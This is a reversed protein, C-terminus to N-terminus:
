AFRTSPGKTSTAGLEEAGEEGCVEAEGPTAATGQKRNEHGQGSPEKDGEDEKMAATKWTLLPGFDYENQSLVFRKMVPPKPPRSPNKVRSMFVNRPDANLTPVACAGACPLAVESSPAGVVEFCLSANTLGVRTSDFKM